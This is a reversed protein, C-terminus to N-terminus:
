WHSSRAFVWAQNSSNFFGLTIGRSFGGELKEKLGVVKSRGREIGEIDFSEGKPTPLNM